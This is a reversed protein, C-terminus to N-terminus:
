LAVRRTRLIISIVAPAGILATIANIPLVYSTGPLQAMVDCLLLLVAGTVAVAPLLVLHDHTKFITRTFHPVALGVFAIPGCFATVAGTLVCAILIMAMRSPETNIGLSAAYNNGLLWANMPKAICLFVVAAVSLTLTLVVIEPYNLGGLSGFTWILYMQQDDANSTYQVVSVVSTVTAGIMLGVILLSTNDRLSRSIALVVLLVGVAGLTAASAITWPGASLAPIWASQGMITLSVALSSGSSIGLVDPGALANRFLTQMALGAVSLSAGALICTLAKTMRFQWVIDSWVPNNTNKGLLIGTLDSIPIRVSGLYLNLVLSFILLFPLFIWRKNVTQKMLPVGEAIIRCKLIVQPFPRYATRAPL